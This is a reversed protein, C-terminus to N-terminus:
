KAMELPMLQWRIPAMFDAFLNRRKVLLLKREVKFTPDSESTFRYTLFLRDSTYNATKTPRAWEKKILKARIDHVIEYRPEGIGVDIKIKFLKDLDANFGCKGMLAKDNHNYGWIYARVTGEPTDFRPEYSCGVLMWVAAFCVFLTCCLCMKLSNKSSYHRGRSM